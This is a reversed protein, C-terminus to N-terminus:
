PHDWGFLLMRGRAADFAFAFGSQLPSSTVYRRTWAAQAPLGAAVALLLSLAVNMSQVM